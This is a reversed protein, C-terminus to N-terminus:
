APTRYRAAPKPVKGISEPAAAHRPLRQLEERAGAVLGAPLQHIMGAHVGHDEGAARFRGQVHEAVLRRQVQQGFGAALVCGDDGRHGIPVLGDLVDEVRREAVGPLLAGGRRQQQQLGLDVVIGIELVGQAVRDVTNADARRPVQFGLHARKDTRGRPVQFVRQFHEFWAFRPGDHRPPRFVVRIEPRRAHFVADLGATARVHGFEEPRHEAHHTELLEGLRDLHDVLRAVAQGGSQLAEVVALLLLPLRLM